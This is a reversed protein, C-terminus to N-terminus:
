MSLLFGFIPSIKFNRETCLEIKSVALSKNSIVCHLLMFNYSKEGELDNM